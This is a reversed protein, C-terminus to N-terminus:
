LSFDMQAEERKKFSEWAIRQTNVLGDKVESPLGQSQKIMLQLYKITMLLHDDKKKFLRKEPKEGSGPINYTNGGDENQTEGPKENKVNKNKEENQVNQPNQMKTTKEDAMIQEGESLILYGNLDILLPRIIGRV